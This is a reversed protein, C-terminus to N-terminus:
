HHHKYSLSYQGAGMCSKTSYASWKDGRHVNEWTFSQSYYTLGLVDTLAHQIENAKNQKARLKRM